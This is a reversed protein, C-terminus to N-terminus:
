EDEDYSVNELFFNDDDVENFFTKSLFINNDKDNIMKKEKPFQIENQLNNIKENITKMEKNISKEDHEANKKIAEILEEYIKKYSNIVSLYKEKKIELDKWKLNLKEIQGKSKNKVEILKNKLEENRNILIVLEKKDEIEKQIQILNQQFIQSKQDIDLEIQFIKDKIFKQFDKETKIQKTKLNKNYKIILEEADEKSFLFKESIKERLSSLDYPIPIEAIEGFFNISLYNM